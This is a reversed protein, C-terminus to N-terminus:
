HRNKDGLGKVEINEVGNRAFEEDYQQWIEMEKAFREELPMAAIADRGYARIFDRRGLRELLEEWFTANEFDELQRVAPTADVFEKSCMWRGNDDRRSVLNELGMEGAQSMIKQLLERYIATEEKEAERHAHLVWDVMYVMDLLLQYERKTFHVKM